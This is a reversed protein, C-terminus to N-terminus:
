PGIASGCGCAKLWAQEESPRCRQKKGNPCTIRCDADRDCVIVLGREDFWNPTVFDVHGSCNAGSNVAYVCHQGPVCDSPRMCTFRPDREGCASAAKCQPPSGCCREGEACTAGDCRANKALKICYGRECQTGPMRCPSGEICREGFECPTQGSRLVPECLNITGGSFLFQECCIEGSKCDVSEDCRSIGSLSYGHAFPAKDCAEWQERLAGTAGRPGDKSTPLCVGDTSAECCTETGSVCTRDACSLV